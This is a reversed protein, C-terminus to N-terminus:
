GALRQQEWVRRAPRWMVAARVVNACEEPHKKLMEPTLHILRYGFAAAVAWKWRDQDSNHRGGVNKRGKADTYVAKTGGDIEVVVGGWGGPAPWCFDFRWGRDEAFRYERVPAPLDALYVELLGCFLKEPESGQFRTFDVVDWWEARRARSTRAM